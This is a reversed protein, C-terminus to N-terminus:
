SLETQGRAAARLQGVAAMVSPPTTDDDTQGPTFVDDTQGGGASMALARLWFAVGKAGPDPVSAVTEQPVYSARGAGASMTRTAEAGTEAADAAAALAAAMTGGAVAVRDFAEAAPILADLMTRNGRSAGGYHTMAACGSAFAAAAAAVSPPSDMLAGAVANLFISYLAGSSGGMSRGVSSALGLATTAPHTLAYSSVDALVSTAGATLTTGCDGDGAVEDWATLQKEGAILAEAAARIASAVAAAQAADLCLAGAPPVLSALSGGVGCPLAPAPVIRARNIRGGGPWAPASCPADLRALMSDSLRLVSLSFGVMDLATMFPGTFCREVVVGYSAGELTAVARRAAISLEMATSAGLNNVLVAVPDGSTLTLYKRGGEQSTIYQLLTDVVGDVPQAPSVVAGPEGHIGLGVEMHGDAIREERPQGPLTCSRLAVGMSGVAAAAARAEAAVEALSMGAEAAAGAIKHVFVTGAIGRRGAIGMGRNALACDDGVVM